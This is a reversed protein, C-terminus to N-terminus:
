EVMLANIKEKSQNIKYMLSDFWAPKMTKAIDRATSRASKAPEDISVENAPEAKVEAVPEAVITESYSNADM